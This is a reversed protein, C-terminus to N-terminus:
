RFRFRFWFYAVVLGVLINTLASLRIIWAVAQSNIVEVVMPYLSGSNKRWSATMLRQLRSPNFLIFCNILLAFALFGAEIIIRM